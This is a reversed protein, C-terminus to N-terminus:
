IYIAVVHADSDKKRIRSDTEFEFRDNTKLNVLNVRRDKIRSHIPQAETIFETPDLPFCMGKVELDITKLADLITQNFEVDGYRRLMIAGLCKALEHHISPINGSTVCITNITRRRKPDKGPIIYERYHNEEKYTM